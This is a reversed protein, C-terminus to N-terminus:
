ELVPYSTYNRQYRANGRSPVQHIIQVQGRNSPLPSAVENSSGRCENNPSGLTSSAIASGAESETQNADPSPWGRQEEPFKAEELGLCCGCNQLDRGRGTGAQHIRPRNGCLHRGMPEHPLPSPPNMTVMSNPTVTM